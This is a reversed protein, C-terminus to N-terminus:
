VLELVAGDEGEPELVKLAVRRGTDEETAAWVVGIGGRGLFRDVTYGPVAPPGAYRTLVPITTSM